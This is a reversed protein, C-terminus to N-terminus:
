FPTQTPEEPEPEVTVDEVIAEVADKVLVLEDAIEQLDQGNELEAIQAQLQAILDELPAVAEAVAAAVKAVVEQAEESATAKIEAILAKLDEKTTMDRLRRNITNLQQRIEQLLAPLGLLHKLWDM